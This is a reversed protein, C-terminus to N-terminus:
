EPNIILSKHNALNRERIRIRVTINVLGSDVEAIYLNCFCYCLNSYPSLIRSNAKGIWSKHNTTLWTLGEYLGDGTTACAPQVYRCCFMDAIEAEYRYAPNLIRMVKIAPVSGDKWKLASGSRAKWKLAIRIRSRDLHHSDAVVPRCVRYPEM